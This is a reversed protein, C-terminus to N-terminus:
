IMKKCQLNSTLKIAISHSVGAVFIKNNKYVDYTHNILGDNKTKVTHKLERKRYFNKM